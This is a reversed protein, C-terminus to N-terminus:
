RIKRSKVHFNSYQYDARRFLLTGAEDVRYSTRRSPLLFNDNSAYDENIVLSFHDAHKVRYGEHLYSDTDFYHWWIDTSDKFAIDEPQYRAKLVYVLNGSLTDVGEYSLKVGPDLLKFPLLIAYESALLTNLSAVSDVSEAVKGNVYKEVKGDRLMLQHNGSSDQWIIELIHKPYFHYRHHQDSRSEIQGTSDYFQTIKDFKIKALQQWNTVGGTKELSRVLIEKVQPDSCNEVIDKPTAECGFIYIAPILLLYILTRSM